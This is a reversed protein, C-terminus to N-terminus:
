TSLLKMKRNGSIWSGYDFLLLKLDNVNASLIFFQLTAILSLAEEQCVASLASLHNYQCTLEQCM